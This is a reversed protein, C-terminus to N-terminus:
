KASVLNNRVPIIAALTPQDLPDFRDHEVVCLVMCVGFNQGIWRIIRGPGGVLFLLKRDSEALIRQIAELYGPIENVSSSQNVIKCVDAGRETQSRAIHLNEELTTSRNTHCSILVEGGRRHIEAILAKQKEIAVPDETLELDVPHAGFLDGVVDLLTAGADLALLLLEACQEDTYGQSHRGRYSTAYIPRGACASFIEALTERNRYERRLHDLQIGFAEAGADLSKQIKRICEEPTECLIMACLLAHDHNLFSPRM